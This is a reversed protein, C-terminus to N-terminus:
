LEEMNVTSKPDRKYVNINKRLWSVSAKSQLLKSAEPDHIFSHSKLKAIVYDLPRNNIHSHGGQGPVAWSLVIGEKAHRVINDIYVSEFKRPVHEAVELSMVWDYLPLGYHPLTLDLYKVRGESVVDYYPGGDYAPIFLLSLSFIHKYVLTLM